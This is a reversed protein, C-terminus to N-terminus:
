NKQKMNVILREFSNQGLYLTGIIQSLIQGLILGMASLKALYGLGTQSIVMTSSKIVNSFAINKYKIDILGIIYLNTFM